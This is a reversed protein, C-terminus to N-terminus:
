GLGAERPGLGTRRRRRDGPRPRFIAREARFPTSAAVTRFAPRGIVPGPLRPLDFAPSLRLPLPLHAFALLTIRDTFIQVSPAKANLGTTTKSHEGPQLSRQISPPAQVGVESCGCGCRDGGAGDVVLEMSWWSWRGGAGDIAQRFIAREAKPHAATAASRFALRGIM